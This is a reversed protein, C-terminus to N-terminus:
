DVDGHALSTAGGSSILGATRSANTFRGNDLNLFCSNTGWFSNVLLDLLGDGNVDAFTAGTSSRGACAVGSAATANEFRGNGLNRFLANEGGRRCFYLDCLSAADLGGAGVGAGGVMT